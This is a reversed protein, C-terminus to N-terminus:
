SIAAVSIDSESFTLIFKRTWFGKPPHWVSDHSSIIQKDTIKLYSDQFGKVALTDKGDAFACNVLKPIELFIYPLIHSHM